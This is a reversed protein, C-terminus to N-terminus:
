FRINFAGETVVAQGTAGSSQAAPATFQFTGAVREATLTTVTLSGSGLGDSPGLGLAQWLHNPGFLSYNMNMGVAGPISYTGAGEDPFAITINSTSGVSGTISIFNNIRLALVGSNASWSAGNVRATMTGEAGPGNPGDGGDGGCATLLVLAVLLPGRCAPIISTAAPLWRRPMSM